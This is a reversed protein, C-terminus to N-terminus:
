ISCWPVILLVSRESEYQKSKVSMPLLDCFNGLFCWSIVHLFELSFELLLTKVGCRRIALTMPYKMLHSTKEKHTLLSSYQFIQFIPIDNFYILFFLSFLILFSIYKIINWYELYELIKKKIVVVLCNQFKSACFLRDTTELLRKVVRLKEKLTWIWRACCKLRVIYRLPTIYFCKKAANMSCLVKLARHITLAYHLFM